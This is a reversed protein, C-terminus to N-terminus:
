NQLIFSWKVASRGTTQFLGRWYIWIPEITLSSRNCIRWRKEIYSGRVTKSISRITHPICSQLSYWKRLKAGRQQIIHQTSCVWEVGDSVHVRTPGSEIPHLLNNLLYEKLCLIKKNDALPEFVEVADYKEQDFQSRFSFLGQLNKKEEMPVIEGFFYWAGALALM